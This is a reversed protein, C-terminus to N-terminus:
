TGKGLGTALRLRTPCERGKQPAGLKSRASPGETGEPLERPQGPTRPAEPSKTLQPHPDGGGRCPPLSLLCPQPPLSSPPLQSTPAPRLICCSGLTPAPHSVPPQRPQLAPRLRSVRAQTRKTGPSLARSCRPPAPPPMPPPLSAVGQDRWPGGPTWGAPGQTHGRTDAHPGHRARQQGCSSSASQCSRCPERLAHPRSRCTATNPNTHSSHTPVVSPQM